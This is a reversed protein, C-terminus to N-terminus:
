QIEKALNKWYDNKYGKKIVKRIYINIAPNDNIYSKIDIPVDQRNQGALDFLTEKEKENLELIESIKLLMLTPANRRGKEIDVLYAATINLKSALEYQKINRQIRLNQLFDGFVM